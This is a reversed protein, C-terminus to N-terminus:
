STNSALLLKVFLSALLSSGKLSQTHLSYQESQRQQLQATPTSRGDKSLSALSERSGFPSSTKSSSNSKNERLYYHTAAVELAMLTSAVGGSGNTKYTHELGHTIMSLISVIGKYVPKTVQQLVFISFSFLLFYFM